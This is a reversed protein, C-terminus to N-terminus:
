QKRRTAGPVALRLTGGTTNEKASVAASVESIRFRWTNRSRRGIPHAPIEGDRVMELVRRPTVSLFLAIVDEDVFPEYGRFDAVPNSSISETATLHELTQENVVGSRQQQSTVSYDQGM